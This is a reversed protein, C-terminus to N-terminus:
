LGGRKGLIAISGDATGDVSTAPCKWMSVPRAIRSQDYALPGFGPSTPPEQCCGGAPETAVHGEGFHTSCWIATHIHTAIESWKASFTLFNYYTAGSLDPGPCAARTTCARCCAWCSRASVAM